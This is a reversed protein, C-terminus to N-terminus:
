IVLIDTFRADPELEAFLRALERIPRLPLMPRELDHFGRYHAISRQLSSFSDARLMGYPWFELVLPPRGALLRQAGALAHGEYGQVDMWLLMRASAEIHDLSDLRISPVDIHAREAEGYRGPARSRAIRHDGWNSDSLEMTLVAEDRDSAARQVVEIRDFLGNIAINARLLRCNTPQAEVAVARQAFGRLVAPICISGINAGVDLLVDTRGSGPSAQELLRTATKFKGFDSSGAIFLARSIGKDRANVLFRADDVEAYLYDSLGIENFADFLRNRSATDAQQLFRAVAMEEARDDEMRRMRASLADRELYVGRAVPLRRLVLEIAARLKDKV